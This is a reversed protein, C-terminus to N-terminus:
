ILALAEAKNFHLAVLGACGNGSEIAGFEVALVQPNIEFVRFISTTLGGPQVSCPRMWPFGQVQFGAGGM